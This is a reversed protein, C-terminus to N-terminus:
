TPPPVDRAVQSGPEARRMVQLRVGHEDTIVEGDVYGHRRYFDLTRESDAGIFLQLGALGEIQEAVQHLSTLLLTGLGMGQVDPAVVVRCVQALEGPQTVRLQASGLLRGGRGFAGDVTAEVTLVTRTPDAVVREIGALGERLPSLIPDGHHQDQSVFAALQLTLLEGADETM